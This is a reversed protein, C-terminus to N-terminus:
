ELQNLIYKVIQNGPFKKNSYNFYMDLLNQREQKKYDNDNIIDKIFQELANGTQISTHVTFALKGLENFKETPVRNSYTYAIPKNVMLYEVMFSGSDHILGDSQLFLDVYDGEEVQLNSTQEWLEFYKNTEIRGWLDDKSLIEKLFPHPKLAFQIQEEYKKALEIFNKCFLLFCSWDLGTSQYGKITWHPAWIIKKKSKSSKKWVSKRGDSLFRDLHPFGFSVVNVGKNRSYKKALEVHIQTEYFNKWTLNLFTANYEYEYLSDIRFSYPVYCTLRDSYHEILYEKTTLENPNTFFVIDPDLIVKIDIDKKNMNDRTEIYRYKNKICFEISKQIEKEMFIDGKTTFPCIVVTPVIKTSSEFAWYVSDYKWTDVNILFFAVKINDKKKVRELAKQHNQQVKKLKIKFYTNHLPKFILRLWKYFFKLGNYLFAPLIIKLINILKGIM